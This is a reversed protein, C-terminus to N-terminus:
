AVPMSPDIAAAYGKMGGIMNRVSEYGESILFDTAKGSRGGSRCICVVNSEKPIESFRTTLQGLPIHLVGPLVSVALEDDERVDLLLLDAGSDLEAKLETPTVENM